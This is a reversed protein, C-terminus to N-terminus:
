TSAVFGYIIRGDKTWGYVKPNYRGTSNGEYTLRKPLGGNMPIVYIEFPGEYQGCFAIYKGDPSIDAHIEMGPHSTLRQANGSNVSVKWLDGEATFVVTENFISPSRYYGEGAYLGFVHHLFFVLFSIKIKM